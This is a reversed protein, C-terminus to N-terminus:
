PNPTASDSLPLTDKSSPPFAARSLFYASLRYVTYCVPVAALFFLIGWGFSPARFPLYFLCFLTVFFFVGGITHRIALPSWRFLALYGARLFGITFLLWIVGDQITAIRLRLPRQGNPPLFLVVIGTLGILGLVSGLSRVCYKIIRAKRPRAASAGLNM